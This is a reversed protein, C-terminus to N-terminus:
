RRVLWREDEGEELRVCPQRRVLPPQCPERLPNPLQPADHRRSTLHTHPGDQRKSKKRVPKNQECLCANSGKGVAWDMVRM